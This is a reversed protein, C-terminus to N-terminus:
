RLRLRFTVYTGSILGADPKSECFVQGMARANKSILNADTAAMLM